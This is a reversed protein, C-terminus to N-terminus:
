QPPRRSRLQSVAFIVLSFVGNLRVTGSRSLISDDLDLGREQCFFAPVNERVLDLCAAQPRHHLQARFYYAACCMPRAFIGQRASPVRPIQSSLPKGTSGRTRSSYGLFNLQRDPASLPRTSPSFHGM